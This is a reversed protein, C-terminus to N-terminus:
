SHLNLLRMSVNFTEWVYYRSVKQCIRQNFGLIVERRQNQCVPPPQRELFIELFHLLYDRNEKADSPFSYASNQVARSIM